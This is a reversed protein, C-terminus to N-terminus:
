KMEKEMIKIEQKKSKNTQKIERRLTTIEKRIDTMSKTLRRKTMQETQKQMKMARKKSEETRKVLEDVLNQSQERHIREREMWEAKHKSDLANALQKGLCQVAAVVLVMKTKCPPKIPDESPSVEEKMTSLQAEGSLKALVMGTLNPNDQLHLHLHFVDLWSQPVFGFFDSENTGSRRSREDSEMKFIKNLQNWMQPM